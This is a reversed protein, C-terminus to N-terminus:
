VFEMFDSRKIGAPCAWRVTQKTQLDGYIFVDALPGKKAKYLIHRGDRSVGATCDPFEPQKKLIGLHMLFAPALGGRGFHRFDKLYKRLYDPAPVGDFVAFDDPKPEVYPRANETVKGTAIAITWVWEKRGKMQQRATFTAVGDKTFTLQAGMPIIPVGSGMRAQLKVPVRIDTPRGDRQLVLTGNILGGCWDDPFPVLLWARSKGDASLLSQTRGGNLEEVEGFHAIFEEKAADYSWAGSNEDIKRVLWFAGDVDLPVFPVDKIINGSTADLRFWDGSDGLDRCFIFNKMVGFTFLRSNGQRICRVDWTRYNIDYLNFGGVHLTVFRQFLGESDDRVLCDLLSEANGASHGFEIRKTIPIQPRSPICEWAGAIFDWENTKDTAERTFIVFKGTGTPTQEAASPPFTRSLPAQNRPITNTLGQASVSFPCGCPLLLSFGALFTIIAFRTM